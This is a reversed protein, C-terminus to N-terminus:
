VTSWYYFRKTHKLISSCLRVRGYLMCQYFEMFFDSAACQLVSKRLAYLTTQTPM